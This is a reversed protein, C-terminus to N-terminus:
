PKLQDSPEWSPAAQTLQDRYETPVRLLSEEDLLAGFLQANFSSRRNHLVNAQYEDYTGRFVLSEVEIRPYTDIHQSTTANLQQWAAAHETWLSKIRDVRGIQQEMVGPNWEPHFLFVRRCAMHLNLGERGVQSQAVLVYPGTNRRNFGAQIARRTEHRDEGNLLRCFPSRPEKLYRDLYCPLADWTRDRNVETVPSDNSQDDDSGDVKADVERNFICTVHDRVVRGVLASFADDTVPRKDTHGEHLLMDFVDSRIIQVLSQWNEPAADRIQILWKGHSLSALWDERDARIRRLLNERRAEYRSRAEALLKVLSSATQRQDRLVGDLPQPAFSQDYVHKLLVGEDADIHWAPMFATGKRDLVRLIHRANLIDRLARMPENFRGFVLVKEQPVWGDYRCLAEIRDAAQVIRPHTWLWSKATQEPSNSLRQQTIAWARMRREKRSPTTGEEIAPLEFEVRLGSSYRIDTQRQRHELESPGGKSALGQGELALVMKRWTDDLQKIQIGHTKMQRHPHAGSLEPLLLVQMEEQSIRRRRTVYPRLANAFDRSAKALADLADPQDVYSRTRQLAAAFSKIACEITGLAVPDKDIGTRKLLAMWQEATLEIPTATMSVHRAESARQLTNALLYGLRTHPHEDDERSKHAEDIVLLDLPGMLRGMLHRLLQRGGGKEKFFATCASNSEEDDGRNPRLREDQLLQDIQQPYRLGALYKAATEQNRWWTRDRDAVHLRERKNRYLLWRNNGSQTGDDERIARILAPLELRWAQANGKVMYMDFTQSILLWRGQRNAAIPYRSGTGLAAADFLDAYTHLPVVRWQKSLPIGFHQLATVLQDIEQQWQFILGPPVVAAVNGGEELVAFLVLLAIRTKGLGVEDAVIVGHQQIQKAVWRLSHQQGYCFLAKPRSWEQLRQGVRQWLGPKSTNRIM